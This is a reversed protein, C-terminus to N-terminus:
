IIWPMQLKWFVFMGGAVWFFCVYPQGANTFWDDVFAPSKSHVHCGQLSIKWVAGSEDM